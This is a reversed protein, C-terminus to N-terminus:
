SSKSSKKPREHWEGKSQFVMLTGSYPFLCRIERRLTAPSPIALVSLTEVQLCRALGTAQIFRNTLESISTNFHDASYCFKMPSDFFNKM